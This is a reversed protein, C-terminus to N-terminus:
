RHSHMSLTQGEWEPYICDKRWEGNWEYVADEVEAKAEGRWLSAVHDLDQANRIDERPLLTPADAPLSPLFPFQDLLTDLDPIDKLAYKAETKKKSKPKSSPHPPPPPSPKQPKPQKLKVARPVFILKPSPSPAPKPTVALKESSSITEGHEYIGGKINEYFLTILVLRM